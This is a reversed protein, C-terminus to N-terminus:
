TFRRMLNSRVWCFAGNVNVLHTIMNGMLMLVLMIHVVIDHMVPSSIDHHIFSKGQTHKFGRFALQTQYEGNAKKKMARMSDIINAGKPINHGDVVEWVGNKLMQEYEWDVSAQWNDKELSAVAEDFGLVKLENTNDIGSGIGTGVCGFENEEFLEGLAFYCNREAATLTAEGTTTYTTPNEEDTTHKEEEIDNGVPQDELDNLYNTPNNNEQLEEDSEESIGEGM